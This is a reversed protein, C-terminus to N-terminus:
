SDLCYCLAAIYFHRANNPHQSSLFKTFCVFLSTQFFFSHFFLLPFLFMATFLFPITTNPATKHIDFTERLIDIDWVSSVCTMHLVDVATDASRRLLYRLGQAGGSRGQFRLCYRARRPHQACVAAGCFDIGFVHFFDRVTHSCPKSDEIVVTVQRPEMEGAGRVRIGIRPIRSSFRLHFNDFFQSEM